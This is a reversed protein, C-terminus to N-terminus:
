DEKDLEERVIKRVEKFLPEYMLDSDTQLQFRRHLEGVFIASPVGVLIAVLLFLEFNPFLYSLRSNQVLDFGLIVFSGVSSFLGIYAMGWKFKTFLTNPRKNM